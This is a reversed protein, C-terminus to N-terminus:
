FEAFVALKTWHANHKDPNLSIAYRSSVLGSHEFRDRDYRIDSLRNGRICLMQAQLGLKAFSFDKSVTLEATCIDANNGYYAYTSFAHQFETHKEMELGVHYANDLSHRHGWCVQLSIDYGRGGYDLGIGASPTILANKIEYGKEKYTEDRRFYDISGSLSFIYRENLFYSVKMSSKGKFKNLRYRDQHGIKKYDYVDVGDVVSSVYREFLFERGNRQSVDADVLFHIGWTANNWLLGYNLNLLHTAARYLNLKYIYEETNMRDYNYKARANMRLRKEPNSNFALTVGLNNIHNQQKTSNFVPSHIYDYMGFGYEVFFGTFQGSRFHKVDMHQRHLTYELGLSFLHKGYSYAVGTKLTLWTTINEIRPDNQKFAFDGIYEGSVGLDAKGIRTSYACLINYKEYHTNGGTSDAMIYPWYLDPYRQTNWGIHKHEGATFGVKGLFTSNTSRTYGNARVSVDRFNNGEVPLYDGEHEGLSGEAGVFLTRTRATQRMPNDTFFYRRDEIMRHILAPNDLAYNRTEIEPRIINEKFESQTPSNSLEYLYSNQAIAETSFFFVSLLALIGLRKEKTDFREKKM